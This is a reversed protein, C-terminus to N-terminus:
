ARKEVPQAQSAQAARREAERADESIRQFNLGQLIATVVVQNAKVFEQTQRLADSIQGAFDHGRGLDITEGVKMPKSKGYYTGLYKELESHTVTCVYTREEYDGSALGIIKM